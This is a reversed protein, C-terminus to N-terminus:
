DCRQTTRTIQTLTWVINVQSRANWELKPCTEQGNEHVAAIVVESPYHSAVDRHASKKGVGFVYM